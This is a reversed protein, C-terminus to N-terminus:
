LEGSEAPDLIEASDAILHLDIASEAAELFPDGISPADAIVQPSRATPLIRPKPRAATAEVPVETRASDAEFPCVPAPSRAALTMVVAAAGVSGLLMWRTRKM